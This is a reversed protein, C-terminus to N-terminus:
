AYVAKLALTNDNIYIKYTSDTLKELSLFVEAGDEGGGNIYFKISVGTSFLYDAPMTVNQSYNGGSILTWTAPISQIFKSIAATTLVPSNVGDHAHTDSRDINYQLQTWWDLDGNAPRKYGYTTTTGM